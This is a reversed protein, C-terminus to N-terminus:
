FPQLIGKLILVLSGASVMLWLLVGLLLPKLGVSRLTSLTLNLGIFFLTLVLGRRALTQVMHGVPQTEPIWTVVAAALLFGMIFWPKKIGKTKADLNANARAVWWAIFLTVPVIWLARALKITTGIQLATSGFQMTAGVVSSTDHIALASWLGFQEQSMEFHQGLLPFLVLALANLFFVTGLAVSISHSKARISPAVAAIASGGCIATGVSILISTEQDAKLLRNLVWGFFLTFSIGIFTYGFGHVGAQAVTNLNMGAGLGIVSYSLLKPAIQKTREHFPNGITLAIIIGMLLALPSSWWSTLSLVSFMLILTGAMKNRTSWQLFSKM